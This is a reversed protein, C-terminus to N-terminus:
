VCAAGRGPFLQGSGRSYVHYATQDDKCGKQDIIDKRIIKDYLGERDVVELGMCGYSPPKSPRSQPSERTVPAKPM